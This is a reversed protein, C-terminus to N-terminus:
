HDVPHRRRYIWLCLRPFFGSRKERRPRDRDSFRGYFINAGSFALTGLFVLLSAWLWDGEGITVMLLSSTTGLLTFFRLFGKKKNTVDAIAGLLPSLFVIMILSLSQTYGWYATSTTPDLGKGAVDSFFIPMVAAMITTAFASNAWDYMAWSRIVQRNM